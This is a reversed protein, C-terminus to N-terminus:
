APAVLMAKLVGGEMVGVVKVARDPRGVYEGLPVLVTANSLDLPVIRGGASLYFETRPACDAATPACDVVVALLSGIHTEPQPAAGRQPAAHLVAYILTAAVAAIFAGAVPKLLVFFTSPPPPVGELSKGV